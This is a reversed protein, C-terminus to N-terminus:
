DSSIEIIAGNYDINTQIIRTDTAKSSASLIILAIFTILAILLRRKNKRM